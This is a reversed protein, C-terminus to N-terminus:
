RQGKFRMGDWVGTEGNPLRYAQGRQLNSASLNSPLPAPERAARGARELLPSPRYGQERGYTERMGDVEQQYVQVFRQLKKEVTARDDTPQPVFPALRPFEAVTVAAGSRDHITLSGLDAIAARADVGAPDVRNLISNPLYGKMGTASGDGTSTGVNKGQVLSLADQARQLNQLNSQIATNASTPIQKLPATIASGDANTVAQATIPGSGPRKPLAVMGGETQVYQPANQDLALRDRSVQLNGLAVANGAREGPTMTKPFAAGRQQNTREDIPLVSGGTDLYRMKAEPAFPSVQQTGDKFTIITVPQNDQMGVEIGHVQPMWKAANDMLKEATAMDGNRAYVQAQQVLRNMLGQQYSGGPQAPSLLGGRPPPQQGPM